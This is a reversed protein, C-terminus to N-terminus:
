LTDRKIINYDKANNIENPSIDYCSWSNKFGIDDMLNVINNSGAFPELIIADKYNPISKFWKFFIDVLFPNAITFFQGRLRKLRLTPDILDNFKDEFKNVTNSM